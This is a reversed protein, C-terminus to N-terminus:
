VLAIILSKFKNNLITVADLHDNRNFLPKILIRLQDLILEQKAKLPIM